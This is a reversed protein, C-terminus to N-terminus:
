KELMIIHSSRAVKLRFTAVTDVPTELVHDASNAKWETCEM